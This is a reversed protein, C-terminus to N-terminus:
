KKGYESLMVRLIDEASTGSQQLELAKQLIEAKGKAEGQAVGQAVGDLFGREHLSLMKKVDKDEKFIQFGNNFSEVVKQVKKSKPVVEVGLLFKVLEGLADKRQSLKSLSVYLIGSINPHLAGTREEKLVYRAYTAGCLVSPEDEALLWTQNTAKGNGHVLGLAYYEVSRVEIPIATNARNQFEIYDVDDNAQTAKIDQNRTKNKKDLLYAYQTEVRKLRKAIPKLTTTPANQCYDVLVTNIITRLTEWYKRQRFMHTLFIDHMPYIDKTGSPLEVYGLPVVNKFAM